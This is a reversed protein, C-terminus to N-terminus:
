HVEAVKKKAQGEKKQQWDCSFVGLFATYMHSKNAYIGSSRLVWQLGIKDLNTGFESEQSFSTLLLHGFHTGGRVPTATCGLHAFLNYLLKQAM